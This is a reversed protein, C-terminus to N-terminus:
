TYNMRDHSMPCRCILLSSMLQGNFHYDITM